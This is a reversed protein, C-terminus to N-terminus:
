AMCQRYQWSRIKSATGITCEMNRYFYQTPVHVPMNSNCDLWHASYAKPTGIYLLHIIDSPGSKQSQELLTSAKAIRTCRPLTYSWRQCNNWYEALIELLLAEIINLLTSTLYWLINPGILKSVTMINFCSVLMYAQITHFYYARTDYKGVCYKEHLYLCVVPIGNFM